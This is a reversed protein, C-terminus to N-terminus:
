IKFLSADIAQNLHVNRLEILTYDKNKEHIEVKSITRQNRNVHLIIKDFMDRMPKKQPLLTVLYEDSTSSLSIKFEKPNNLSKGIISSMMIRAIEKFMKNQEVNIVSRQGDKLFLVQTDNLVFVLAYPFTYEWRLKNSQQYHMVGRSIMKDNLMRLHKTQVFEAQMSRLGATTQSIQQLIQQDDQASLRLTSSLLLLLAFSLQKIVTM